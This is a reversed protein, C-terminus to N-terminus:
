HNFISTSPGISLKVLFTLFTGGGGWGWLCGKLFLFSLLLSHSFEKVKSRKINECIQILIKMVIQFYKIFEGQRIKVLKM